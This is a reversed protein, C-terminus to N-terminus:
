YLFDLEQLNSIKLHTLVNRIADDMNIYKFEAFRGVLKVGIEKFFAKIKEIKERYYSDLLPYAYKIKFARSFIVDDKSFIKLRDLEEVVMDAIEESNKKFLPDDPKVTIEALISAKGEPANEPSFNSPFSIRHSHIDRDPIYLWSLNKINLEKLGIAVTLLSNYKLHSVDNSVEKSANFIKVAEQLPVTSVINDFVNEEYGNSVVWKDSEKKVNKVEFGTIIEGDVKKRLSEVLYQIGGKRPYYFYLQHVYGESGVGLSAKIVDLVKPNPLRGIFDLSIDEVRMKWIKENYPILYKESIARGFSNYFFEKLNRHDKRRKIRALLFHILCSINETLPLNSLGNEFPYKVLRGKYLIATNRRNRVKNEGLLRLMLDLIEKDKSFIVHSGGIDFVFGDENISRMLGGIAKEKELVTVDYGMRSSFFAYSIGSLGGGLIGVKPTDPKVTKM